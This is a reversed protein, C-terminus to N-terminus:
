VRKVEIGDRSMVVELLSPDFASDRVKLIRLQRQLEAQSRSIEVLLLNDATSAFDPTLYHPGTVAMHSLEYSALVTVGQARLAELLAVTVGQVRGPDASVKGLGRLSDLFVRKIGHREVAELLEYAVRDIIAPASPRWLMHLAGRSELQDSALGLATAKMRLRYPSEHFGFHLGPEDPTSASLFQLGLSTKGAGSPGILLSISSEMLGGGLSVDLAASGSTVRGLPVEAAVSSTAAQSDLRPYIAIGKDTIEFEHAGAIAGSGRTKRLKLRRIPVASISEESMEIVGDVMTHEPSGEDLQSSTLFLVTCGAFAAHGQLAAIFKKTDIPAEAKSRANLLGDLILLSSKQRSIERRLLKVVEDLGDNELTDFASVFQISDGLACSDFFTLTSLFQFLRDHPEALLSAFLMRGGRKVHNFGIQNALITKGSGPRGQIIYSAGSILGGKLLTDLGPVGTELRELQKM